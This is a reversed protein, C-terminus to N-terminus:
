KIALLLNNVQEETVSVNRGRYSLSAPRAQETINGSWAETIVWDGHRYATAHHVYGNMMGTERQWNFQSPNELISPLQRSIKSEIEREEQAYKSKLEEASFM